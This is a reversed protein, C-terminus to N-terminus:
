TPDPPTPTGVITLRAVEKLLDCGANIAVVFADFAAQKDTPVFPRINGQYKNVFDCARGVAVLASSLGAIKIFNAAVLVGGDDIM